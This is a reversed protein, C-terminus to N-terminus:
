CVRWAPDKAEAIDAAMELLNLATRADGQAARVMIQLADADVVIKQKKFVEDAALANNVVQKLEDETLHNCFM